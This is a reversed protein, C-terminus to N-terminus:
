LREEIKFQKSFLELHPQIIPTLDSVLGWISERGLNTSDPNTILLVDTHQGCAIEMAEHVGFRDTSSVSTLPLDFMRYSNDRFVQTQGSRTKNKLSRDVRQISWGYDHNYQFQTRLGIFQRGLEIASLSADIFGMRLYRASVPAPLLFPVYGYNPDVKGVVAGSDYVDGAAGTSDVSSIRLRASGTATVNSGIGYITDFSQSSGLDVIIDDSIGGAGRWHRTVHPDLLISPPTLIQASTASVSTATADLLNVYGVAANFTAVM